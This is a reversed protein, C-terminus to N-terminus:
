IWFVRGNRRNGQIRGRHTTHVRQTDDIDNAHTGQQREYRSRYWEPDKRRMETSDFHGRDRLFWVSRNLM